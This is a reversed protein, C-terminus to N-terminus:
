QRCSNHPRTYLIIVMVTEIVFFAIPQAGDAVTWKPVALLAFICSVFYLTWATRNEKDPNKYGNIWTPIAGLVLVILTIAIGLTPDDFIKWLLIALAAAGLCIKDALKWTGEGHKIALIAVFTTGIVSAIIQGNVAHKAFMGAFTIVDLVTWIVWSAASPVTEKRRIARIYPVYALLFTLCALTDLITHVVKDHLFDNIV